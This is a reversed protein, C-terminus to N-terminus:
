RLESFLEEYQRGIDSWNFQRATKQGAAVFKARLEADDLLQMIASAVRNVNGVPVMLCNENDSAYDRLGGSDTCVVPVGCSMAELPMLGFGEEYACSVFITSKKYAAVLEHDNRPTVFDYPVSLTSALLPNAGIVLARFNTRSERIIDMAACFDHFGRIPQHAVTMIMTEGSSAAVVEHTFVETDIGNSIVPVDHHGSAALIDSLWRSITVKYLPLYYSFHASFFPIWQTRMNKQRFFNPEYGQVLYFTKARSIRLKALFASYATLYYTAVVVDSDTPVAKALAIVKSAVGFVGACNASHARLIKVDRHVPFPIDTDGIVILRCQHKFKALQNAIEIAIRVGGRREISILLFSIKM